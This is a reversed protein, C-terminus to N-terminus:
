RDRHLHREGTDADIDIVVDPSDPHYLSVHPENAERRRSDRRVVVLAAFLAVTVVAAIIAWGEFGGGLAILLAGASAVVGMGLIWTSYNELVRIRISRTRPAESNM